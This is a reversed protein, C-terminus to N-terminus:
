RRRAAKHGSASCGAGGGGGGSASQTQRRHMRALMTDVYAAVTHVTNYLHQPLSHKSCVPVVVMANNYIDLLTYKNQVANIRCMCCMNRPHQSIVIEDTNGAVRLQM